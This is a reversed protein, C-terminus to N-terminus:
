EADGPEGLHFGREDQYGMAASACMAWLALGCFAIVGIVISAITV